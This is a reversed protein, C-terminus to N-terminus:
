HVNLSLYFFIKFIIKILKEHHNQYILFDANLKLSKNHFLEDVIM